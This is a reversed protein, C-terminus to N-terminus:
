WQNQPILTALCHEPPLAEGKRNRAEVYQTRFQAGPQPEHLFVDLVCNDKAFQMVQAAMESRILSPPGMLMEVDSATLGMLRGPDPPIPAPPESTQPRAAMDHAPSLPQPTIIDAPGTSISSCASIGYSLCMVIAARVPTMIMTM